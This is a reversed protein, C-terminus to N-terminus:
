HPPTSNDGLQGMRKDFKRAVLNEFEKGLYPRHDFLYWKISDWYDKLEQMDGTRDLLDTIEKLKERKLQDKRLEYLDVLRHRQGETFGIDLSREMLDNVIGQIEKFDRSAEIKTRVRDLMADTIERLREEFARELENEYDDTYFPTKRLSRLSYHFYNKLQDLDGISRMYSIKQGINIRDVFDVTLVRKDEDKGLVLGTKARFFHNLYYPESWLKKASINNLSDNLAEYRREVKEALDLFNVCVPKNKGRFRACGMLVILLLKIMNEYNMYVSVNEFGYLRVEDRILRELMFDLAEGPLSRLGNYLRLAEFLEREFTPYGVGRYNRRQYIFRLPVKVILSALDRFEVYRIGKLRFIRELAYIKRGARVYDEERSEDRGFSDFYNAPTKDPPLGRQYYLELAHFVHGRRSCIERIHEDLTRKGEIIEHCICRIRYLQTALDELVIGEKMSSFVIFSSIFFADFFNKHGLDLLEQTAYISFEGRVMHHLFDHYRVLDVLYKRSKGYIGYREPIKEKELFYAGALAHDVINVENRYKERLVPNLGIDRFVSSRIFAEFLPRDASMLQNIMSGLTEIQVESLGVIGAAMPGFERQAAKHLLEVDQFGDKDRRILAEIKKISKLIHSLVPSKLYVKGALKLDKLEMIEPLVFELLSPCRQYLIEIDSYLSEPHFLAKVFNARITERLAEARKFWMRQRAPLRLDSDDHSLLRLHSTYFSELNGFFSEMEELSQVPIESVRCGEYEKAMRELRNINEDMNIYTIDLAQTEHNLKLQFGTGVIFSTQSEYLQDSFRRLTPLDLYNENIYKTEAEVEKVLHSIEAPAVGALIPNFNVIDTRSLNVAVWLLPFLMRGDMREFIHGTGHFEINLFKRYFTSVELPDSKLYKREFERIVGLLRLANEIKALNADNYDALVEKEMIGKSPLDQWNHLFEFRNMMKLIKRVIQHHIGGTSSISEDLYQEWDLERNTVVRVMSDYLGFLEALQETSLGSRKSAVTEAMTMLRCYGLLNLSQQSDVTRALDSVPKLAKENMKGALVRGMATHGVVILFIEKLEGPSFGFLSLIELNSLLSTRPGEIGEPNLYSEIRELKSIKSILGLVHNLSPYRKKKNVLPERLQEMFVEPLWPLEKRKIGKLVRLTRILYGFSDRYDALLSLPCGSLKSEAVTEKIESLTTEPVKKEGLYILMYSPPYGDIRFRREWDSKVSEPLLPKLFIEEFFPSFMEPWAKVQDYSLTDELPYNLYPLEDMEEINLEEVNRGDLLKNLIDSGMYMGDLYKQLDFVNVQYAGGGSHYKKMTRFAHSFLLFNKEEELSRFTVEVTQKSRLPHSDAIMFLEGGQKLSQFSRNLFYIAYERLRKKSTLAKKSPNFEKMVIIEYIDRTLIVMDLEARLSQLMRLSDIVVFQHEKFRLSLDNVILHDAQTLLGIRYREKLYKKGHFRIIKSIEDARNRIRSVSLSILNGPVLYFPRGHSSFRILLGLEAYIRNIERYHRRVNEPDELSVSQLLELDKQSLRNYLEFFGFGYANGGFRSQMQAPHRRSVFTGPPIDRPDIGLSQFEEPKIFSFPDDSGITDFPLSEPLNM